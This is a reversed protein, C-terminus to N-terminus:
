LGTLSNKLFSVIHQYTDIKDTENLTEHRAGEILLLTSKCGSEVLSNHLEKTGKGMGGVPDESGSFVLMPMKKSILDLNDSIFINSVGEIVDLWLQNTVVFGCLPDKTYDDVSLQDRSLWDNPTNTDKFKANFGGFITKHLFNSYGSPGLRMTEIRVLFKQVITELVKPKSSGSILAANFDTVKQLASMAIWSGMSHGLLIHPLEPYQKVAWEHISILDDVLYSWGGKTAFFGIKGDILRDGHGRHNHIVVHFGEENLYSIFNEYRGLHEAMGHSIQVVGHSLDQNSEFLAFDLTVSSSHDLPIIQMLIYFLM